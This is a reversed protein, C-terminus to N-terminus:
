PTPRSGAHSDYEYQWRKIELMKLCMSIIRKFTNQLYFWSHHIKSNKKKKLCLTRSQLYEIKSMLSCQFRLSSWPSFFPVLWVVIFYCTNWRIITHFRTWYNSYNPRLLTAATKYLEQYKSCGWSLNLSFRECHEYLYSPNLTRGSVRREEERAARLHSEIADLDIKPMATEINYVDFGGVSHVSWDILWDIFIGEFPLILSRFVYTCLYRDHFKNWRKRRKKLSTKNGIRFYFWSSNQLM